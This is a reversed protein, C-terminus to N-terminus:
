ATWIMDLEEESLFGSMVREILHRIEFIANKMSSVNVSGEDSSIVINIGEELSFGKNENLALSSAIMSTVFMDDVSLDPSKKDFCITKNDKTKINVKHSSQDVDINNTNSNVFLLPTQLFSMENVDDFHDINSLARIFQANKMIRMDEPHGVKRTILISSENPYDSLENWLKGLIDWHYELSKENIVYQM